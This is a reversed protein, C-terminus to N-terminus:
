KRRTVFDPLELSFRPTTEVTYFKNKDEPLPTTEKKESWHHVIEQDSPCTKKFTDNDYANGLYRWLGKMSAPIDFNKFAKSAVRIHQLKPLVNCDLHTLDEGCIYTNESRELFGNLYSLEKILHDPTHSVNKVFFSFKSFVDLCATHADRNGYRLDPRPFNSDVYQQIEETDMIVEDGHKLVPLKNAFKRFEQPPRATSVTIIDYTLAGAKAKLDLVMYFRQCFPCAGYGVGDWGARVYLVVHNGPRQGSM